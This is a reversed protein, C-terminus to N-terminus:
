LYDNEIVLGNLSVIKHESIFNFLIYQKIKKDEAQEQAKALIKACM